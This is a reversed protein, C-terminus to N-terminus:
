VIEDVSTADEEMWKDRWNESIDDEIKALWAAQKESLKDIPTDKNQFWFDRVAIYYKSSFGDSGECLKRIEIDRINYADAVTTM